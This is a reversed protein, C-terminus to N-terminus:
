RNSGLTDEGAGLQHRSSRPEHADHDVRGLSRKNRVAFTEVEVAFFSELQDRIQPELGAPILFIGVCEGPEATGNDLVGLIQHPQLFHDEGQPGSIMM